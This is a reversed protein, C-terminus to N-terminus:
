TKCHKKMYVINVIYDSIYFFLTKPVVRIRITKFPDPDPDPWIIRIRVSGSGFCRYYIFTLSLTYNSISFKSYPIFTHVILFIQSSIITATLSPFFVVQNKCFISTQSPWLEQYKLHCNINLELLYNIKGTLAKNQFFWGTRCSWM